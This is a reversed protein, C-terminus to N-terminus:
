AIAIGRMIDFENPRLNMEIMLDLRDQDTKDMWSKMAKANGYSSVPMTHIIWLALNKLCQESFDDAHCAAKLFDNELVARVFSGPELGYAM